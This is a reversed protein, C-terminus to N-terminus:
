EKHPYTNYFVPAHLWRNRDLAIRLLPYFYSSKDYQAPFINSHAFLSKYSEQANEKENFTPASHNLQYSLFAPYIQQELRALRYCYDQMFKIWQEPDQKGAPRSQGEYNFEHFYTKHMVSTIIEHKIFPNEIYLLAKYIDYTQEYTLEEPLHKAGRESLRSSFSFLTTGNLVTEILFYDWLSGASNKLYAKYTRTYFKCANKIPREESSTKHIKETPSYSTKNYNPNKYSPDIIWQCWAVATPGGLKLLLDLVSDSFINIFLDKSRLDEISVSEKRKEGKWYCAFQPPEPALKINKLIADMLSSTTNPCYLKIVPRIRGRDPVSRKEHIDMKNESNRNKRAAAALFSLSYKNKPPPYEVKFLSKESCLILPGYPSTVLAIKPERAGTHKPTFSIARISENESIYNCIADLLAILYPLILDSYSQSLIRKQYNDYLEPANYLSVLNKLKEDSGSNSLAEIANHDLRYAQCYEKIKLLHLFINASELM